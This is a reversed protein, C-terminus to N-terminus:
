HVGVAGRVSAILKAPDFAVGNKFVLKVKEVDAIHKSPDGEVVVLDAQKGPAISGIRDTQGLYSAGNYSYIQIAQEPTFGAEVLLELNREDGFGALTGGNGTPDCGAILLGGAAVFAREFDMEKKLATLSRSRSSHAAREKSSLYAIAAQPSMAEVMRLELPSRGPISAEFVSLTSTVAVKHSVLTHIMQQAPAGKLDLNEVSEMGQRDGPCVDRQKGPAFETDVLLGHELDDIGLEAAETFGVSCLHGTIKLGHRHAEEIAAGLADHSINMYAKFSTVGERAWYDVLRRAQEASTISPMQISFGGPGQIYPGTIDMAPGPEAGTDILHKMNLDTYPELSGATRMTTVGSALYLRPASFAQEAYLPIDTLPYFSPYFLHEHMGVLGPYVTDGTLDLKRANAPIQTDAGGAATIRGHDLVITQHARAPAGTGDIVTVNTLAVVQDTFSLFPQLAAPVQAQITAAFLLPVISIAFFPRILRSSEVGDASM